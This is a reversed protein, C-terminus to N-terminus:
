TRNSASIRELVENRKVFFFNAVYPNRGPVQFEKPDSASISRLQGGLHFFGQYGLPELHDRLRQVAGPKCRSPAHSQRHAKSGIAVSSGEEPKVRSIARRSSIGV